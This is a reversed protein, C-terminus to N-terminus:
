PPAITIVNSPPSRTTGYENTASVRSSIAHGVDADQMTYSTGTGVSTAGDRFWEAARDTPAMDWDGLTTTLVAAVAANGTVAPVVLCIPPGIEGYALGKLEDAEAQSPYVTREDAM